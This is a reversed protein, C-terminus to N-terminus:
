AQRKRESLPAGNAPVPAPPSDRRDTPQILAWRTPACRAPGAGASRVARACADSRSPRSPWVAPRSHPGAAPGSSRKRWAEVVVTGVLRKALLRRRREVPGRQPRVGFAQVLGGPVGHAPHAGVPEMLRAAVPKMLSVSFPSGTPWAASVSLPSQLTRKASMPEPDDIAPRFFKMAEARGPRAPRFGFLRRVSNGM